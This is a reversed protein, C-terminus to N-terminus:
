EFKDSKGNDKEWMNPTIKEVSFNDQLGFFYNRLPHFQVGLKEALAKIMYNRAQLRSIGHRYLTHIEGKYNFKGIYRYM